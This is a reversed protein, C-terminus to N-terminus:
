VAAGAGERKYIRGVASPVDPISVKADKLASVVLDQVTDLCFAYKQTTDREMIQYERLQLLEDDPNIIRLGAKITGVHIELLDARGVLRRGMMSLQMRMGVLNEATTKESKPPYAVLSLMTLANDVSAVMFADTTRVVRMLSTLANITEGYAAYAGLARQLTNIENVLVTRPSPPANKGDYTLHHYQASLKRLMTKCTQVLERIKCMVADPHLPTAHGSAPAGETMDLDKQAGEIMDRYQRVWENADKAEDVAERKQHILIRGYVFALTSKHKKVHAFSIRLTAVLQDHCELRERMAHMNKRTNEISAGAEFGGLSAVTQKGGAINVCLLDLTASSQMCAAHMMHMLATTLREAASKKELVEASEGSMPLPPIACVCQALPPPPFTVRM